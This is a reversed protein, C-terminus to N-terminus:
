ARGHDDIRLSGQFGIKPAVAESRVEHRREFELPAIYWLASHCRHTNYWGEIFEFVIPMAQAQTHFRHRALLECELKAFFSECMANDFCDGTSDMSPRM